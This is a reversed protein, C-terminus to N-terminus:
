KVVGYETMDMFSALLHEILCARRHETRYPSDPDDGPEGNGKFAFDFEDVQAPTVGRKRLMIIECLEHVAILVQHEETPLEPNDNVVQIVLNGDEDYFYDGWTAYRMSATPQFEIKINM